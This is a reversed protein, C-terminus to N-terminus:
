NFQNGELTKDAVTGDVFLNAEAIGTFKNNKVTLKGSAVYIPNSDMQQYQSLDFDNNEIIIETQSDDARFSIMGKGAFHDAVEGFVKNNTYEFKTLEAASGAVWALFQLSNKNVTNDIVLTGKFTTSSFPCMVTNVNEFYCSKIAFNELEAGFQIPYGQEGVGLFGVGNFVVDAGSVLFSGTDYNDSTFMAEEAREESSAKNANPGLITLAKEVVIMETIEYTGAAVYIEGGAPAKAVAEVMSTFATLGVLYTVGNVEVETGELTPAVLLKKTNYYKNNELTKAAVTGDYFLTEETLGNFKNNKVTLKGSAVYIPNSALVYGALDFENNEIIIEANSDDTRFSVMGKGAYHSAVEGYVKNNTYEFKTLEAASGSVWALFQLNNKNVTNDIVLTGKFSTSAYPCVVTNVNDFYCSKITLNEMVEGLQIPYGSEGIGTFGLGNFVVNAGSVLFSGTDYNDSTFNAEEAREETSAKDANPGLITLAKEVKIMETIAYTGAAVYIQGGETVKAVAEVMSTFATEGVYYKVGNVEVETGEFAPAVLLKSYDYVKKITVEVEAKVDTDKATAIVKVTGAQLATLVGNADITALTADSTSWEVEQKADAPNVAATFTLTKGEEVETEGTIAVSEPAVENKLVTITIEGKLETEKIKVTIKATGEKAATAVGDLVSVVSPDSSSWAVPAGETFTVDLEVSEGVKIEYADKNVKLEYKTGGGCAFMLFSCFVVLALLFKKM